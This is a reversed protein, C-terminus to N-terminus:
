QPDRTLTVPLVNGPGLRWQGTATGGSLEATYQMGAAGVALTLSGNTVSAETVALSRDQSPIEFSGVQVGDDNTAFRVVIEQPGLRGRWAGSLQAMVESSLDLARVTPTYVGRTLTLPLTSAGQTWTGEIREGAFTGTYRGALVPVRLTLEGGALQLETVPLARVAQEPSDFYAMFRGEASSEFRLVVPFPDTTPGDLTGIWSGALQQKVADSVAAEPPEYEGRRMTVPVQQNLQKWTGQMEEGALTATYEVRAQPIELRLQGGDLTINQMRIGRAGEDVSDLYGVFEGADNTEFRYVITVSGAPGTVKGVWSGALTQKAAEALVAKEYPTLRLPLTTGEQRWEGTFGGDEFRGAYAGGLEEVTLTLRGADFGVEDAAIDKIGGQDPSTVVASYGGGAARTLVFHIKLTTGPAVALEGAWTGSVDQQASAAFACAALLAAVAVFARHRFTSM